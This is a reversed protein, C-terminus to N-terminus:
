LEVLKIFFENIELDEKVLRILLVLCEHGNVNRSADCFVAFFSCKKLKDIYIKRLRNAIASIIKM